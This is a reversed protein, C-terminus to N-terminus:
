EEVTKEVVINKRAKKAERTSMKVKEGNVVVTQMNLKQVKKTTNLAHSRKNGHLPKRTTVKKAM